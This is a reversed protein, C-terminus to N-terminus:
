LGVQSLELARSEGRANSRSSVVSVLVGYPSGHQAFLDWSVTMLLFIQCSSRKCKYFRVITFFILKVSVLYHVYRNPQCLLLNGRDVVLGLLDLANGVDKRLKRLFFLREEGM